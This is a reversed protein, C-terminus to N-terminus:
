IILTGLFVVRILWDRWHGCNGGVPLLRALIRLHCANDARRHIWDPHRYYPNDPGNVEELIHDVIYLINGAHVHGGNQDLARKDRSVWSVAPSSQAMDATPRWFIVYLGYYVTAM